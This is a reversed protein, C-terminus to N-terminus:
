KIKERGESRYARNDTAPQSEFEVKNAVLRFFTVDLAFM